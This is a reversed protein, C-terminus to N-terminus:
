NQMGKKFFGYQAYGVIMSNWSVVDKELIKDFLKSSRQIRGYKVYMDIM